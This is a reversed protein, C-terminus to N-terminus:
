VHFWDTAFAPRGSPSLRLRAPGVPLGDFVFRGLEDLDSSSSSSPSDAVVAGTGHPHLQGRITVLAEARAVQVRLRVDGSSFVFESVDASRGPRSPDDTPDGTADSVELALEGEVISLAFAAKAEALVDAPVPDVASLLETLDEDSPGFPTETV